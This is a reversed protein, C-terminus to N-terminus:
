VSNLFLTREIRASKKEANCRKIVFLMGVTLVAGVALRILSSHVFGALLYVVLCIGSITM